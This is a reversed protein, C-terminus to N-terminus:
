GPRAGPQAAVGFFLHLCLRDVQSLHLLLHQSLILGKEDSLVNGRM